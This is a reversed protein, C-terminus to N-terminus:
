DNPLDGQNTSVFSESTLFEEAKPLSPEAKEGRLAALRAKAGGILALESMGTTESYEALARTFAEELRTTAERLREKHQETLDLM